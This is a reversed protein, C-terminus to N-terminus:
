PMLSVHNGSYPPNTVLADFFDLKKNKEWVSYCDEMVNYVNPFGLDNLNRKVAGNCYYPDYIKTEKGKGLASLLPLVHHYAILPSECHDDSETEYPFPPLNAQTESEIGDAANGESSEVSHNKKRKNKKRRKKRRPSGIKDANVPAPHHADAPKRRGQQSEEDPSPVVIEGGQAEDATFRRRKPSNM